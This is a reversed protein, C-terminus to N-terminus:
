YRPIILHNPVISSLKLPFVMLGELCPPSGTSIHPSLTQVEDPGVGDTFQNGENLSATLSSLAWKQAPQVRVPCQWLSLSLGALTLLFLGGDQSM